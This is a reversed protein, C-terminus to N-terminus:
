IKEMLTNTSKCLIHAVHALFHSNIGCPVTLTYIPLACCGTHLILLSSYNARKMSRLSSFIQEHVLALTNLLTQPNSFLSLLYLSFKKLQAKSEARFFPQPVDFLCETQIQKSALSTICHCKLQIEVKGSYTPSYKIELKHTSFFNNM